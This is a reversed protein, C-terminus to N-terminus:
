FWLNHKNVNILTNIHVLLLSNYKNFLMLLDITYYIYQKNM